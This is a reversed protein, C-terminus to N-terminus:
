DGFVLNFCSFQRNWEVRVLRFPYVSDDIYASLELGAVDFPLQEDIQIKELQRVLERANM